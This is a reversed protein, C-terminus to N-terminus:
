NQVVDEFRDEYELERFDVEAVGSVGQEQMFVGYIVDVAAM